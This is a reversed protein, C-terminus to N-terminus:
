NELIFPELLNSWGNRKGDLTDIKRQLKRIENKLDSSGGERRLQKQKLNLRRELKKQRRELKENTTPTGKTGVEVKVPQSGVSPFTLARSFSTAWSKVSSRISFGKASARYSLTGLHKGTTSNSLRTGLYPHQPHIIPPPFNNRRFSYIGTQLNSIIIKKGPGDMNEFYAKLSTPRGQFKSFQFDIAINPRGIVFYDYYDEVSLPPSNFNRYEQMLFRDITEYFYLSRQQGDQCRNVSSVGGRQSQSSLTSNLGYSM